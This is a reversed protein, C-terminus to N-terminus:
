VITRVKKRIKDGQKQPPTRDKGRLYTKNLSGDEKRPISNDVIDNLLDGIECITSAVNFLANIM